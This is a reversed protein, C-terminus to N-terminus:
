KMRKRQARKKPPQAEAKEEKELPRKMENEGEEVKAPPRKADAEADDRAGAEGLIGDLEQKEEQGLMGWHGLVYAIREIDVCGFGFRGNLEAVAELLIEYEKVSYKLKGGKDKWDDSVLWAYSEDQFFPVHEPSHISLLLSSTAPGIGKLECLTKSAELIKAPSPSSSNDLLSFASTTIDKISSVDNKRVM